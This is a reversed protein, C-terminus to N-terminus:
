GCLVNSKTGDKNDKNIFVMIMGGKQATMAKAAPVRIKLWHRFVSAM